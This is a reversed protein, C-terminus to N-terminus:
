LLAIKKTASAKERRRSSVMRRVREASRNGVRASEEQRPRCGRDIQGLLRSWQVFRGNNIRLCSARWVKRAWQFFQLNETAESCLLSIFNSCFRVLLDILTNSLFVLYLSSTHRLNREVTLWGCAGRHVSADGARASCLCFVLIRSWCALEVSAM